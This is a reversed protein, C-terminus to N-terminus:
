QDTIVCFYNQLEIHPNILDKDMPSVAIAAEEMSLNFISHITM